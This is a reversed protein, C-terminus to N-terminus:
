VTVAFERNLLECGPLAHIGLLCQDRLILGCYRMILRHDVVRTQLEAICRDDRRESAAGADAQDILAVNNVSRIRASEDDDRLHRRYAYNESQRLFMKRLDDICHPAPLKDCRRIILVVADFKGLTTELQDIILDILACARDPELRNKLIMIPLKPGALEDADM